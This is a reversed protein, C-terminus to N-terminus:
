EAEAGLKALESSRYRVLTKSLRIPAVLGREELKRLTERNCGIFDCAAAANLLVESVGAVPKPARQKRPSKRDVGM